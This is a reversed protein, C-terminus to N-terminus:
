CSRTQCNPRSFYSRTPWRPDPRGEPRQCDALSLCGLYPWRGSSFSTLCSINHEEIKRSFLWFAPVRHFRRALNQSNYSSSSEDRDAERQGGAMIGCADRAHIVARHRHSLSQYPPRKLNHTVRIRRHGLAAAVQMGNELAMKVERFHRTRREAVM